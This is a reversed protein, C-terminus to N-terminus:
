RQRHRHHLDPYLHLWVGVAMLAGASILAAGIPERLVVLSVAAGFFPVLSFYAGPIRDRELATLFGAWPV